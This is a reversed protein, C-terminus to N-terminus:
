WNIFICYFLKATSMGPIKNDSRTHKHKNFILYGIDFFGTKFQSAMRKNLNLLRGTYGQM